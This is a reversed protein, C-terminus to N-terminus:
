QRTRHLMYSVLGQQPQPRASSAHSAPPSGANAAETAREATPGAAPRPGSGWRGLMSGVLVAGGVMPWPHHATQSPLDVTRKVTAVTEGITGKGQEGMEGVAAHTGAVGQRVAVLTTDVTAQVDKVMEGVDKMMEEVSVQVGTAGQSVVALTTDVTGKVDEVIEGVDEVIKEVSGHVGTATARVRAEVLTLKETM